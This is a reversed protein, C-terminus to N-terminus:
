LIVDLGHDWHDWHDGCLGNARDGIPNTCSAMIGAHSRLRSWRALSVAVRLTSALCGSVCRETSRLVGSFETEMADREVRVPQVVDVGLRELDQGALELGASFYEAQGGVGKEKGSISSGHAQAALAHRSAIERRETVYPNSTVRVPKGM